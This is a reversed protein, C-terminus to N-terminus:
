LELNECGGAGAFDHIPLGGKFNTTNLLPIKEALYGLPNQHLCCSVAVRLDHNNQLLRLAAHRYGFKATFM